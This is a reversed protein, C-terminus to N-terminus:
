EAAWLSKILGAVEPAKERVVAHGVNPIVHINGFGFEELDERSCIDDEGGLIVLSATKGIKQAQAFLSHSDMIEGDRVIGVVSIKHGAHQQTQWERVAQAVLNGSAVTEKWDQPVILKGGELWNFTWNWATQFDKSHLQELDNPQLSSSRILGAPAILIYSDVREPRSVAYAVTLLSGFSFGILKVKNWQLHDLIDDILTLFLSPEHKADPTDTLGHGWLDLLVFETEPFSVQLIKTLPLLGIAPTQVGHLLLVRDKPQDLSFQIPYYAARGYHTSLYKVPPIIPNFSERYLDESPASIYHLSTEDNNAGSSNSM